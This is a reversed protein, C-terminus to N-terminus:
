AAHIAPGLISDMFDPDYGIHEVEASETVPGILGFRVATGCKQCVPFAEGAQVIAQHNSRHGRHTVSYVGACGAVAGAHWEMETVGRSYNPEAYARSTIM